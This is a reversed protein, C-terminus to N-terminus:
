QKNYDPLFFLYGSVPKYIFSDGYPNVPLKKLYGKSCLEKLNRPPLGTGTTFSKIADELILLNQYALLRRAIQEKQPSREYNVLMTKLLQISLLTNGSEQNAKAALFSIIPQAGPRQGAEQFYKAALKRQGLLHYLNFGLYFGPQWDWYRKAHGQKLMTNVKKTLEDIWALTGEAYYLASFFYPDLALTQDYLVAVAQWDQQEPKYFGGIFYSAQLLLYDSLIGKFEGSIINLVEPNIMVANARHYDKSLHNRQEQLKEGMYATLIFLMTGLLMTILLNRSIFM